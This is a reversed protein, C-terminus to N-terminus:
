QFQFNLTELNGKRKVTLSLNASSKITSLLGMVDDATQIKKQNVEQIIDGDMLGMQKYLSDQRINSILFGDPVGANFYPRVLAQRLLTGMDQLREDIESRKLVMAGPVIAPKAAQSPSLIPREKSEVIRLTQEQNNVLLDIANRKIRLVEVGLVVDGIKVLRQKRNAKEEVIAFGYKGEGAVTGKLEILLAVDQQPLVDAQKETTKSTTTGFLNREPIIRYSDVPERVSAMATQELAAPVPRTRILELKLVSYFIGTAQYLIVATLVLIAVQRFIPDPFASFSFRFHRLWDV